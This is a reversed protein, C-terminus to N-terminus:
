DRGIIVKSIRRMRRMQWHRSGNKVFEPFQGVFLKVVADPGTRDLGLMCRLSMDGARRLGAQGSGRNISHADSFAYSILREMSFSIPATLM